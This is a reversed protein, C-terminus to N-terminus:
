TSILYNCIKKKKKVEEDKKNKSNVEKKSKTDVEKKSKKSKDMEKKLENAKEKIYKSPFLKKLLKNFEQKDIENESESESSYDEYEDGGDSSESAYNDYEKKLDNKSMKKSKPTPIDKINNM